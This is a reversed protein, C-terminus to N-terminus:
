ALARDRVEDEVREEIRGGVGDGDCHIHLNRPAVAESAVIKLGGVDDGDEWGMRELDSPHLHAETAPGLACTANHDDRAIVIRQMNAASPNM